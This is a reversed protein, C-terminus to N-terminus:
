LFFPSTSWAFPGFRGLCFLLKVSNHVVVEGTRTMRCLPSFAVTAAGHVNRCSPRIASRRQLHSILVASRLFRVSPGDALKETTCVCSIAALLGRLWIEAICSFDAIMTSVFVNLLWKPKSRPKGCMRGLKGVIVTPVDHDQLLVRSHFQADRAIIL